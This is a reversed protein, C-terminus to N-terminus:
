QFVADSTGGRRGGWTVGAVLGGDAPCGLGLFAIKVGVVLVFAWHGGFDIQRDDLGGVLVRDDAAGASVALAEIHRLEVTEAEEGGQKNEKVMGRWQGPKASKVSLPTLANNLKRPM